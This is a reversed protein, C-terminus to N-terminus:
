VFVTGLDKEFYTTKARGSQKASPWHQNAAIHPAANLIVTLGQEQKIHIADDCGNLSYLSFLLCKLQVSAEASIFAPSSRNSITDHETEWQGILIVVSVLALLERLRDRSGNPRIQGNRERELERWDAEYIWLAM